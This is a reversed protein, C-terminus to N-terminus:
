PDADLGHAEGRRFAAAFDEDGLVSHAAATIRDVDGREVPPLPAGVSARVAAAAGLLRAADAAEGALAAVGALGEFALAVSRPDASGRAAALGELHRARASPEDGRLEAVFGLEALAFALGPRFGDARHSDAGV